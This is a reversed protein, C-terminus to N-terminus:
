LLTFFVRGLYKHHNQIYRHPPPHLLLNRLYSTCLHNADSPMLAKLLSPVGATPLIGIQSATSVYLPRPREGPPEVIERFFIDEDLDYLERVKLILNNVPDDEYWEQQYKQCEGYLLGAPHSGILWDIGFSFPSSCCSTCSSVLRRVEVKPTFYLTNCSSFRLNVHRFRDSM